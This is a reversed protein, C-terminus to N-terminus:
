SYSKPNKPCNRAIHGAEMCLDCKQENTCNVATHGLTLCRRCKLTGAVCDKAIHGAQGCRRCVNPMGAYYIFGREGAIDFSSPPCCLGNFGNPDLKLRAHYRYKGTKVGWANLVPDGRKVSVCFRGLFSDILDLNVHPNFCHVVILKEDRRYMYELSWAKLEPVEDEKESWLKFLQNCTAESDFTVIFTRGSEFEQVMLLRKVEIGATKRLTEDMLYKLTANEFGSRARFRM